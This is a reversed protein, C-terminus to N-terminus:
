LGCWNSCGMRGVAISFDASNKDEIELVRDIGELYRHDELYYVLLLKKIEYIAQNIDEMM